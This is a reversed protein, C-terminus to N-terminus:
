PIVEDLILLGRIRRREEESGGDVARGYVDLERTNPRKVCEHANSAKFLACLACECM